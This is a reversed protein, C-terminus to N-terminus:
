TAVRNRHISCHSVLKMHCTGLSVIAEHVKLNVKLTEGETVGDM